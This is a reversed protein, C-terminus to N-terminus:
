RSMGREQMEIDIDIDPSVAGAYAFMERAGGFTMGLLCWEFGSVEGAKGVERWRGQGTSCCADGLGIGCRWM